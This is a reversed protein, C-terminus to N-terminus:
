PIVGISDMATRIHSKLDDFRHDFFGMVGLSLLCIVITILLIPGEWKEWRRLHGIEEESANM